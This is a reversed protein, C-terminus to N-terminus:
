RRTPPSSRSTAAPRDVADADRIYAEVTTRVDNHDILGYYSNSGGTLGEKKLAVGVESLLAYSLSDTILTTPTLEKWHEFDTYDEAGLDSRDRAGRHGDM